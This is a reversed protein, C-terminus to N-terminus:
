RNKLINIGINEFGRFIELARSDLTPNTKLFDDMFFFRVKFKYDRMIQVCTKEIRRKFNARIDNPYISFNTNGCRMYIRTNLINVKNNNNSNNFTILRQEATEKLKHLEFKDEHNWVLKLGFDADPNTKDTVPNGKKDLGLKISRGPQIDLIDQKFREESPLLGSKNGYLHDFNTDLYQRENTRRNAVDEIQVTNGKKRTNWIHGRFMSNYPEGSDMLFGTQCGVPIGQTEMLLKFLFACHRCVGIGSKIIEGLYAEEGAFMELRNICEEQSLESYSNIFSKTNDILYTRWDLKQMKGEQIAFEDQWSLPRKSIREFEERWEPIQSQYEQFIEQLNKDKKRDIVTIQNLKPDHLIRGRSDITYKLVPDIYEGIKFGDPVKKHAPFYNSKTFDRSECNVTKKKAQFSILQGNVSNSSHSLYNIIKTEPLSESESVITPKSVKNQVKNDVFRIDSSIFM